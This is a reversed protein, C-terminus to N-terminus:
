ITYNSLNLNRLVIYVFLFLKPTVFYSMKITIFELSVFVYNWSWIHHPTKPHTHNCVFTKVHAKYIHAKDYITAVTKVLRITYQLKQLCVATHSYSVATDQWLIACPRAIYGFRKQSPCVAMDGNSVATDRQYRM